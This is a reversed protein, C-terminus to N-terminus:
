APPRPPFVGGDTASRSRRQLRHLFPEGRPSHGSGKSGPPADRALDALHRLRCSFGQQPELYTVHLVPGLSVLPTALGGALTPPVQSVHPEDAM